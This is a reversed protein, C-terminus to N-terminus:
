KDLLKELSDIDQVNAAAAGKLTKKVLGTLVKGPGCEIFTDCGMAALNNLEDTFRVPSVIHRALRGPMDEISDLEKGTINSFMKIRPMNFAIKEAHPKFEEAASRMLESHFASSVNLRVTRAGMSSLTEAAKETAAREGAIVTQVTSNYNVPVVYGETEGCVMEIEGPTKGIVAYMAGDAKESARQMAESRAKILKFGDSLSIMGTYVMAAYEGLSHGAAAYASIGNKELAGCVALSVAMIAPQAVVTKSLEEDSANVCKDLLDFGLIEGATDFIEKLDPYKETLSGGMGAYQSGQGSFLFVTKESNIM